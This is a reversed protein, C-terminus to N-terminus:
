WEVRVKLFVRRPGIREAWENGPVSAPTFVGPNPNSINNNPVTFHATNTVNSAQGTFVIAAREGLPFRKAVSVHAVHIPYGELVNMGCTGYRGSNAPPVAFASPNFWRSVTRAGSDPDGV